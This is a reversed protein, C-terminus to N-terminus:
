QLIVHNKFSRQLMREAYPVHDRPWQVQLTPLSLPVYETWVLKSTLESTGIAFNHTKLFISYSRKLLSLLWCIDVNPYIHYVM